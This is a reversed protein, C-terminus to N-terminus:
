KAARPSFGKQTLTKEAAELASLTKFPGVEVHYSQMWLHSKRVARAPLGLQSLHSVANDAWGADNFSGVELYPNPLLPASDQPSQNSTKVLAVPQLAFLKTSAAYNDLPLTGVPQPEVLAPVAVEDAIEGSNTRAAYKQSQTKKTTINANASLAHLPQPAKTKSTAATSDAVAAPGADSDAASDLPQPSADFDFEKATFPSVPTPLVSATTQSVRQPQVPSTVSARTTTIPQEAHTEKRMVLGFLVSATFIAAGFVAAQVRKGSPSTSTFSFSRLAGLWNEVRPRATRYLHNAGQKIEKQLLNLDSLAAKGVKQLAVSAAQFYKYEIPPRAPATVPAVAKELSAGLEAVSAFREAPDKELCRLIASDLRAPITAVISSPRPPEQRLQQFALEVANEAAFAQTGTVMEFLILGLAYIDTQFTVLKMELQEPSMYAPTGALDESATGADRSKRAVGFDMIKVTRDHAIVINAPKLDRHVIGQAHAEGLGACIQVAIGVADVPPLAGRRQLKSLLTEGSVYEMSICATTESRTFEHIRCVNKHTVRRALCVEKRLSERMAPDAAIEPKLIKIAVVECTEIDRVRYVIGMGGRGLEEIVEYRAPIALRAQLADLSAKLGGTGDTWVQELQGGSSLITTDDDIIPM